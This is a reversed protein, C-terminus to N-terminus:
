SVRDLEWEGDVINIRSLFAALMEVTGWSWTASTLMWAHTALLILLKWGIGLVM